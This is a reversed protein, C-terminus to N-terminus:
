EDGLPRTQGQGLGNSEAEQNALFRGVDAKVMGVLGLADRDALTQGLHEDFWGEYVDAGAGDGFMGGQPSLNAASKRMERVLMTAFFSEFKNGAEEPSLEGENAGRLVGQMRSLDGSGFSTSMQAGTTLAQLTGDVM